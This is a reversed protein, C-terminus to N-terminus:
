PDQSTKLANTASARRGRKAFFGVFCGVMTSPPEWGDLYSTLRRSTNLPLKWKAWFVHHNNSFVNCKQKNHNLPQFGVVQSSFHSIQAGRGVDVLFLGVVGLWPLNPYAKPNKAGKSALNPARLIGSIEGKAPQLM